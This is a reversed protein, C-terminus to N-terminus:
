MTHNMLEYMWSKRLKSIQCCFVSNIDFQLIGKKSPYKNSQPKSRNM